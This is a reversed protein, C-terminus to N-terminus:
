VKYIIEKKVSQVALCSVYDDDINLDYLSWNNKDENKVWLLEPTTEPKLSVSFNELPFSLGDGKAKIFAEKRTWCNLFARYLNEKDVENLEKIEEASFYNKSIRGADPVERLFELDVGIEEKRNFAYVTYDNSHSLNFKLNTESLFPKGKNTYNFHIESPSIQLYGSLIIRLMSRSIIYNMRLNEFKYRGAKLLEDDSLISKFDEASSVNDSIKIRYIHIESDTILM